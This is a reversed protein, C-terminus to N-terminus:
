ETSPSSSPIVKLGDILVRLMRRAREGDTVKWVAGIMGRVDDADVDARITGAKVGAGVLLEIAGPIKGVTAERMDATLVDAMGRKTATYDVFRDMWRALAEDPPFSALLEDAAARLDDVEAAYAAAVLDERTPFHRYLTGIGVGARKAVAELSAGSGRLAFEEAAASLLKERNRAADARM